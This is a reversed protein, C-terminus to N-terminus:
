SPVKEELSAFSEGSRRRVRRECLVDILSLILISCMILPNLFSEFGIYSPGNSFEVLAYCYSKPIMLLALGIIYVFDLREQEEKLLLVLLPAILYSLNYFFSPTPFLIMFFCLYMMQRWPRKDLVCLAIVLVLFAMGTAITLLSVPFDNPMSKNIMLVPTALLSRFGVAFRYYYASDDPFGGSFAFINKLFYFFNKFYNGQFVLMSLATLIAGTSLGLVLPKWKKGIFFVLFLVVPYVKLCAAIALFIAAAKDNKDYYACFLILMLVSLILYNGRDLSYIIPAATLVSLGIVPYILYKDSYYRIRGLFSSQQDRRVPSRDLIPIMKKWFIFMIFFLAVGYMALLVTQGWISEDRFAEIDLPQKGVTGTGPIIMAFFLAVLLALPPYSAGNLYPVLHSVQENIEFFDTYRANQPFLFTNLPYTLGWARSGIYRYAFFVAFGLIVILSYIWIKKRVMMGCGRM